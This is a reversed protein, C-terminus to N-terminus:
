TRPTSLAVRAFLDGGAGVAALWRTSVFVAWLVLGLLDLGPLGSRRLLRRGGPRQAAVATRRHAVVPGVVYGGSAATILRALGDDSHTSVPGLACTLVWLGQLVRTAARAACRKKSNDPQSRRDPVAFRRIGCAFRDIACDVGISRTSQAILLAPILM